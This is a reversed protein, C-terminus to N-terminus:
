REYALFFQQSAKGLIRLTRQNSDLYTSWKKHLIARVHHTLTIRIVMFIFYDDNTISGMGHYGEVTFRARELLM